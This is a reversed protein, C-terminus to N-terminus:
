RNVRAVVTDPTLVSALFSQAVDVSDPIVRLWEKTSLFCAPDAVCMVKPAFAFDQNVVVAMPVFPLV